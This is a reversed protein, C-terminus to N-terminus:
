GALESLIATAARVPDAAGTVPRGVVIYDAGAAAAMGPTVVRRQDDSVAAEAPRVGPTVALFDPGCVSKIGVAERGSCVVGDLGWRRASRALELALESAGLGSASLFPLDSTEMSTLVTVALLKPRLAGSTLGHNLGELAALAMREGGLAHINLLGVGLGVASRVAGRVTNPIDLFKLDLFVEFGESRLKEVMAPGAAVYLELGVKVWRVVGKLRAAMDLAQASAPYDLAVILETM